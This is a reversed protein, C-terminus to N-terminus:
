RKKPKRKPTARKTATRKVAPRKPQAREASVRTPKARRTKVRTAKKPPDASRRMGSGLPSVQLGPWMGTREMVKFGSPVPTDGALEGYLKIFATEKRLDQEECSDPAWSECRSYAYQAFTIVGSLVALPMMVSSQHMGNMLIFQVRQTRTLKAMADALVRCAMEAGTEGLDSWIPKSFLRRETEAFWERVVGRSEAVDQTLICVVLSAILDDEMRESTTFDCCTCHASYVGFSGADLGGTTLWEFAIAAILDESNSRVPTGAPTTAGSLSYDDEADDSVEARARELIKLDNRLLELVPPPVPASSYLSGTVINFKGPAHLVLQLGPELESHIPCYAASCSLLIRLQEAMKFRPVHWQSNRVMGGEDVVEVFHWLGVTNSGEFMGSAGQRTAWFLAANDSRCLLKVNFDNAVFNLVADIRGM